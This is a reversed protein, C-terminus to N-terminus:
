LGPRQWKDRLKGVADPERSVARDIEDRATRQRQAGEAARARAADIGSQRGRLFVTFVLVVAAGAAALMTWIRVGLGSLFTLM